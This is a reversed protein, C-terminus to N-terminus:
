NKNQMKRRKWAINHDALAALAASATQSPHILPIRLTKVIKPVVLTILDSSIQLFILLNVKAKVRIRRNVDIKKQKKSKPKPHIRNIKLVHCLFPIKRTKLSETL